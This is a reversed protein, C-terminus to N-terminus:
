SESFYINHRICFNFPIRTKKIVNKLSYVRLFLVLAHTTVNVLLIYTERNDNFLFNLNEFLLCINNDSFFCEKELKLSFISRQKLCRLSKKLYIDVDYIAIKIENKARQEKFSCLQKFFRNVGASKWKSM